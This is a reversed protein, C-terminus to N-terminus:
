WPLLQLLSLVLWPSTVTVPSALVRGGQGGNVGSCRGAPLHSFVGARVKKPTWEGKDKQKDRTGGWRSHIRKRGDSRGEGWDLGRVDRLQVM